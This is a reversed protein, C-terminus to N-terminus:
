IWHATTTMVKAALRMGLRVPLPLESGGAEMANRGHRAEDLQMQEVIARSRRDVAPLRRRHGELHQEVQRETEAVFGLSWRDGSLGAVSGITYSGLYWLPNLYSTHDDLEQLRAACWNLHDAEEAAAELMHDRLSPRRATMAQGLYLAQACVEGAHNVRMLGAVERRESESLRAEPLHAAPNPRTGTVDAGPRFGRLWHDLRSILADATTTKRVLTTM